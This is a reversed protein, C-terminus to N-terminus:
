RVQWEWIRGKKRVGSWFAFKSEDNTQAKKERIFNYQDRRVEKGKTTDFSVGWGNDAARDIRINYPGCKWYEISEAGAHASASSLLLGFACVTLLLKNMNHSEQNDAREVGRSSSENHDRRSHRKV